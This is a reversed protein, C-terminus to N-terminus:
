GNLADALSKAIIGIEFRGACYSRGAAALRQRLNKDNLLREIQLAFDKPTSAALAYKEEETFEANMGVPSCVSPVGASLYQILKYSAKGRSYPDDALPMIGVDFNRIECDQVDLSWRINDVKLGECTFDKDSIVRLIFERKQRLEELGPAIKRLYEFNGSLGVWGLVPPNGLNYDTKVKIRSCDVASPVIKVNASPYIDLVKGALTRNAAVVVDAGLVTRSFRAMRSRSEYLRPDAAPSADKLYIADDFDFVLRRANKRLVAFEVASLLKKQLLVTDYRGAKRFLNLRGLVSSPVTELTADIGHRGLLPLLDKVRIRSSPTRDTKIIFLVNM